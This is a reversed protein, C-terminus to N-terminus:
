NFPAFAERRWTKNEGKKKRDNYIIGGGRL